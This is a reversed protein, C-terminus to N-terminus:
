VMVVAVDGDVDSSSRASVASAGSVRSLIAKNLTSRRPGKRMRSLLDQVEQDFVQESSRTSLASRTSWFFERLVQVFDAPDSFSFKLGGATQVMNPAIKTFFDETPFVFGPISVPIVDPSSSEGRAKTAMAAIALQHASALSGSSLLVIVHTAKPVGQLAVRTDQEFDCMCCLGNPMLDELHSQMKMKLLCVVAAAEDCEQDSSIALKGALTDSLLKLRSTTVEQCPKSPADILGGLLELRKTGIVGTPVDIRSVTNDSILKRFAATIHAATIGYHEFNCCQLDLYESLDDLDEDDPPLFSPTQVAIVNCKATLLAITVEAACWPKNLTCRTLYAILTGVRSKVIDLMVDLVALDDSDLCVAQGTKSQMMVKLLRAQAAADAKHHCIFYGYFVGGRWMKACSALLSGVALAFTLGFITTGVVKISSLDATMGVCMSGVMMMMWMGINIGTDIFNNLPVRWPMTQTQILHVASLVLGIMIVQLPLNDRVVVPVLCILLSRIMMCLGYYYKTPELKSFFFRTAHLYLASSATVRATRRPFLWTCYCAAAFFPAPVIAFVILGLAFM